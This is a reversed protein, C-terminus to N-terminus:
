ESEKRRLLRAPIGARNAARVYGLAMQANYTCGRVVGFLEVEWDHLGPRFLGFGLLMAAPKVRRLITLQWGGASKDTSCLPHQPTPTLAPPYCQHTFPLPRQQHRHRKRVLLSARTQTGM